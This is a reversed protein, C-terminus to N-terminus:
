IDKIIDTVQKYVINIYISITIASYVRIYETSVFIAITSATAGLTGTIPLFTLPIVSSRTNRHSHTNSYTFTKISPSTKTTPSFTIIYTFITHTYLQIPILLIWITLM